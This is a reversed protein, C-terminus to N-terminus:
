SATEQLLYYRIQYTNPGLPDAVRCEFTVNTSDVSGVIEIGSPGTEIYPLNVRSGAVGPFEMYALMVPVYGLNHAVVRDTAGGTSTTLSTTSNTVIKFVNQDSNFILQDNTATTADYGEKAVKLIPKGLSNIYCAILVKGDTGYLLFGYGLDNPLRGTILGDVGGAQKFVKTVQENNLQRIMNNIQNWNSSDSNSSSTPTLSM